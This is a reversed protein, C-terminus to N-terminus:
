DDKHVKKTTLEKIYDDLKIELAQSVKAPLHSDALYSSAMMMYMTSKLPLLCAVLGTVFVVPWKKIIKEWAIKANGSRDIYEDLCMIRGVCAIGLAILGLIMFIGLLININECLDVLYLATTVTM